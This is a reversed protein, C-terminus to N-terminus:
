RHETKKKYFVTRLHEKPEFCTSLGLMSETSGLILYGDPSLVRALRDFFNQRDTKSFYVAVNRCFIIDFVGLGDFPKMLNRKGFQVMARIDDRIKWENNQRLFYTNLIEKPLGRDVEFRSYIGYSAKAIAANSIDTGLLKIHYHDLDPLLEKLVIAISYVEQGTSCAASWIKIPIPTNKGPVTRKDIMDPLIKHLLLQFPAINRFFYTENTTVRDIIKKQLSRDRDLRAIHLLETFTSCHYEVLLERMRSEILYAKNTGLNIGSVDYVYHIFAYLENHTIKKIAASL